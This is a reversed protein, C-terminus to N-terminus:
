KHQRADGVVRAKCNLFNDARTPLRASDFLTFHLYKVGIEFSFYRLCLIQIKEKKHLYM